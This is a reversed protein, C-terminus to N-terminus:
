KLEPAPPKPAPGANWVASEAVARRMPGLASALCFVSLPLMLMANTAVALGLKADEQYLYTTLLGVMTPGIGTGILMFCFLYGSSIQGRFNNPTVLQLCGPAVGAFGAFLNFLFSFVIFGALSDVTYAAVLTAAQVVGGVIFCWLHADKMGRAFLRDAVYGSLLTGGVGAVLAISTLITVIDSIGLGYQRILFTPAWAQHGVASAAM